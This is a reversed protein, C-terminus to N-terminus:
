IVFIDSREGGEEDLCRTEGSEYWCCFSGGLVDEGGREGGDGLMRWWARRLVLGWEILGSSLLAGTELGLATLENKRPLLFNFLM